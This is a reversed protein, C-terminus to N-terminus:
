VNCPSLFSIENRAKHPVFGLNHLETKLFASDCDPTYLIQQITQQNAIAARFDFPLQLSDRFLMKSGNGLASLSIRLEQEEAYKKDKFYTYEIPNPLRETNAQHNEREVYEIIGYNVSFIQHCPNSNYHLEANQLTQNIMARLKGFCFVICVKGKTSDNAHNNWIYDSNELSFCCAYTRARSQNYHDAASLDTKKEFKMRANGPQDKPLQRGDHPDADYRDIRTFHLYNGKISSVLDEIRMIKYLLQGDPPATLLPAHPEICDLLANENM